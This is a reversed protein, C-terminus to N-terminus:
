RRGRKETRGEGLWRRERERWRRWGDERKIHFYEISTFFFGELKASYQPSLAFRTFSLPKVARSISGNWVLLLIRCRVSFRVCHTEAAKSAVQSTLFLNSINGGVVNNRYFISYQFLYRPINVYSCLLCSPEGQKKRLTDGERLWRSWLWKWSM